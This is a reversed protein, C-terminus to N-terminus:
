FTIAMGEQAAALGALRALFMAGAVLERKQECDLFYTEHPEDLKHLCLCSFSMGPSNLSEFRNKAAHIRFFGGVPVGAIGYIVPEIPYGSYTDATLIGEQVVFRQAGVDGKTTFLKNRKKRNLSRFEESSFVFTIGLGYTGSDNKVFAYPADTIGYRQYKEQTLLLVEDVALAIQSLDEENVGEVMRTVPSLLWPDIDFDHGFEHILRDLLRFHESKYRNHWGLAPAPIIAAELGKLGPPVGSSFDNNSLILDAVVGGLRLHQPEGAIRTPQYIALSKEGHGDDFVIRLPDIPFHELPMTVRCERGTLVILERLKVLNSLYFRNRTHSEALLAIRRVGPHFQNLYASLARATEATFTNCLNNFGAPFLNTDVVGMKHRSHRIDCSFYPLPKLGRWRSEFWAAIETPRAELLQSIVKLPM